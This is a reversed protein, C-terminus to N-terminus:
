RLAVALEIEDRIPIGHRGREPIQPKLARAADISNIHIAVIRLGRRQYFHMAEVNDNTTVLWLRACGRQRAETVAAALLASGVGAAPELAELTVLEFEEGSQEFTAVGVIEAGKSCVIADLGAADRVRGRSVITTSGWSATLQAALWDREDEGLARVELQQRPEDM